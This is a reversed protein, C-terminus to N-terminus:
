TKAREARIWYPSDDGDKIWKRLETIAWDREPHNWDRWEDWCRQTQRGAFAALMQRPETDAARWLIEAILYHSQWSVTVRALYAHALDADALYAHALDAHALYAHALNAHALNAGALDAHALDAGALNARATVAQEVADRLCTATNSNYLKQGEISYIVHEDSDIM